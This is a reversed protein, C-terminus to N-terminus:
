PLLLVSLPLPPRAYTRGRVDLLLHRATSCGSPLACSPCAGCSPGALLALEAPSAVFASFHPHARATDPPANVFAGSLAARLPAPAFTAFSHDALPLLPVARLAAYASDDLDSLCHELLFLGDARSGHWSQGAASCM